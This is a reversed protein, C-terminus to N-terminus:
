RLCDGTDRATTLDQDLVARLEDLTLAYAVDNRDPAVAFAVGIVNGDGDVLASGSDGPQLEAALVLVQRRSDQRDYIDKGLATIEDAVEFPSIELDGGGPHGFVGGIDGVEANDLPLAGRDLGEVRLVALDRVPDFAVVTADEVRGDNLAVETADEGAVVHANTVVLEEAVVFGTGEQVRDCAVGQVKVTSAAAASVVQPSLGAAEPAPGPDPAPELADLVQPFSEEGVVRRLAEITDPPNPFYTDVESAILSNRAQEATWGPASALTPLLLWLLVLVGITGSVAGAVRDVRRAPGNPLAIHLKSGLTMGIGQGVLALGLLTAVQVLLKSVDSAEHLRRMLGPLLMAGLLVGAVLGLWSVVRVLFGLRYGGIAASVALLVLILDLLNM